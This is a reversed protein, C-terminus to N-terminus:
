KVRFEVYATGEGVQVVQEIRKERGPHYLVATYTGPPVGNIEFTGDPSVTTFFPNDLVVIYASMEPHVDCLIPYNGTEDLTREIPASNAPMALNFLGRKGAYAHVNHLFPDSNLMRVTTGKVIPLIHPLFVKNKQDFAQVTGDGSFTGDAEQLYVMIKGCRKGCNVKGQIVGQLDIAVLPTTVLLAVAVILLKHPMTM